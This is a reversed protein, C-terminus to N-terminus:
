AHNNYSEQYEHAIAQCNEPSADDIRIRRRGGSDEKQVFSMRDRECVRGDDRVVAGLVGAGEM